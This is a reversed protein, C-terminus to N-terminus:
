FQAVDPQQIDVQEVPVVMRRGDSLSVPLWHRQRTVRYGEDELQTVLASSLPSTEDALLKELDLDSNDADRARVQIKSQPDIQGADDSMALTLTEWVPEESTAELPLESSAAPDPLNTETANPAAAPNTAAVHDAAPAVPRTEPAAEALQPQSSNGFRTGLGFAVLLSAAIALLSGWFAGRRNPAVSAGRPANQATTAALLADGKLQGLQWRWSQAELFALACRRWAGPEDDLAALLERREAQSLEGDVLRDLVRNEDRRFADVITM